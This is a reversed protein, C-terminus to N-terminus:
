LKEIARREEAFRRDLQIAAARENALIEDLERSIAHLEDALTGDTMKVLNYCRAYCPMHAPALLAQQRNAQRCVVLRWRSGDLVDGPRRRSQILRLPSSVTCRWAFVRLSMSAPLSVTKSAIRDALYRLIVIVDPPGYLMNSGFVDTKPVFKNVECSLVPLRDLGGYRVIM